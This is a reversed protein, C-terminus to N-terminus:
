APNPAAGWPRPKGRRLGHRPEAAPPPSPCVAPPASGNRPLSVTGSAPSARPIAVSRPPRHSPTPFIHAATLGSIATTPRPRGATSSKLGRPLPRCPMWFRPAWGHASRRKGAATHRGTSRSRSGTPANRGPRFSWRRFCFREARHSTRNAPTSRSRSGAAPAHPSGRRTLSAPASRNPFRM